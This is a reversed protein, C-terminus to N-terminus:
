AAPVSKFGTTFIIVDLNVASSDKGKLSIPGHIRTVTGVIPDAGAAVKLDGTVGDYTLPTDNNYAGGAKFYPTQIEFQGACSLAPLKGAEIVDEDTSDELAIYPIKAAQGGLVWEFRQNPDSWTASVVQGSKIVVGDAVPFAQTLTHPEQPNYGRLVVVRPKSRKITGFTPM